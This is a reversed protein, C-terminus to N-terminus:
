DFMAKIEANGRLFTKVVRYKDGPIEGYVARAMEISYQPSDEDGLFTTEEILKSIKIGPM